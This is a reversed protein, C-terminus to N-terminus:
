DEKVHKYSGNELKVWKRVKNVQIKDRFAELINEVSVGSRCAAELLLGLADAYEIADTPEAEIEKIEDKLHELASQTELDPFTSQTWELHERAIDQFDLWPKTSEQDTKPNFLNYVALLMIPQMAQGFTLQTHWIKRYKVINYVEEPSLEFCTVLGTEEPSEGLQGYYAPLTIYEPQNEAIMITAEKFKIARM